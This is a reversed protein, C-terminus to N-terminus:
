VQLPKSTTERVVLSPLLREKEDKTLASSDTRGDIADILARVAIEGLERSPYRVTTLAPIMFRSTDLDNFGILSVDTPIRMGAEHLARAAGMAARDSSQVFLATFDKRRELLAKTASYGGEVFWDGEFLLSRDVEIGRELFAQEFGLSRVDSEYAGEPGTIAAIRRHGLEILYSTALYAGLQSDASVSYVGPKDGAYGTTVVPVGQPLESLLRYTDHKSGHYAILIGDLQRGRLMTVDNPEARSLREAGSILTHYGRAAAYEEAAVLTRAMASGRFTATLMGIINTRQTALSKALSNPAYNLEKMVAEVRDRTEARVNQHNNLVRSVTQYSVGAARAIDRITPRKQVEM